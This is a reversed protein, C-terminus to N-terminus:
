RCPHGLRCARWLGVDRGHPVLDAAAAAAAAMRPSASPRRARCRRSLASQPLGTRRRCRVGRRGTRHLLVRFSPQGGVPPASLSHFAASQSVPPLPSSAPPPPMSCVAHALAPRDAPTCARRSHSHTAASVAAVPTHSRPVVRLKSSGGADAVAATPTRTAHAVAAAATAAAVVSMTSLNLSEIAPRLRLATMGMRVTGIRFNGIRFNQKRRPAYACHRNPLAARQPHRRLLSPAASVARAAACVRGVGDLM